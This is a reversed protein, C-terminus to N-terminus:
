RRRLLPYLKCGLCLGTAANLATVGFTIVTLVYGVADVGLIFSILAVATFVFGVFQSFRQPKADELKVAGKLRPWIARAFLQAWPSWQFSYATFAFMAVQSALLGLGLPRAVDMVLLAVALVTATVGASFRLLRPDVSARLPCAGLRNSPM